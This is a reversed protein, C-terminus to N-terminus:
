KFNRYYLIILKLLVLPLYVRKHDHFFTLFGDVLNRYMTSYNEHINRPIIDFVSVKFQQIPINEKNPENFEIPHYFYIWHNAKVIDTHQPLIKNIKIWQKENNNLLDLLWIQKSSTCFLIIITDFLQILKYHEKEIM